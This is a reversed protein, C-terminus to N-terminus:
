GETPIEEEYKILTGENDQPQAKFEADIVTEKDKKFALSFGAQNQGVITVRIDGDMPDKHVFHLVYKKGNDNGIGGIKVTRVGAVETVRATSCLKGLTKGNWTMIGSKLTAEEETIIVKTVKGMDDKAEYFKPKYELSAGGQIAGLLNEEKEIVNNEPVTGTFESCYLDGSGLVIKEGDTVM